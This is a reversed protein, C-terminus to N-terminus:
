QRDFVFMAIAVTTTWLDKQGKATQTVNTTKIFLGSSKYAQEKESWAKDPDFEMGMTTGLMGAALDEAMDSAQLRNMGHGHVESLYGWKTKDKPMAVGVSSAVLRGHEDTDARAMVCFSIAGPTLYSMGKERSIIKCNPPLISSVQVLNLEAVGANRLAEEFSKLQYKHRGVGKTLFVHTPVLDLM